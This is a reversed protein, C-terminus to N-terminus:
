GPRQVVEEGKESCMEKKSFGICAATYEGWLLLKYFALGSLVMANFM